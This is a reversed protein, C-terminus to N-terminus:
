QQIIIIYFLSFEPYPFTLHWGVFYIFIFLFEQRLLLSLVSVFSPWVWFIFPKHVKQGGILVLEGVIKLSLGPIEEFFHCLGHSSRFAVFLTSIVKDFYKFMEFCNLAYDLAKGLLSIIWSADGECMSHSLKRARFFIWGGQILTLNERRWNLSSVM